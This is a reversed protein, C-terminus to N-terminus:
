IKELENVMTIIHNAAETPNQKYKKYLLYPYIADDVTELGPYRATENVLWNGDISDDSFGTLATMVKNIERKMQPPMKRKEAEVTISKWDYNVYLFYAGKKIPVYIDSWDWVNEETEAKPFKNKVNEFIVGKFLEWNTDDITSLVNGIAVAARITEESQIILDVIAKNVEKDETEGFISKIASLLQRIVERVPPTDETQPEKLCLELWSIIDKKFSISVYEEDDATESAKGDRTLFLVPINRGKNKARSYKAYDKVQYAQEGARIKVEIPIFVNGDEIVIDIRRQADIPYEIHVKADPTNLNISDKIKASVIDWFLKLYLDGKYHRGKPDLLDAIVRCMIVEKESIHAIKFINYKLGKQQYLKDYNKIIETGHRLLLAANQVLGNDNVCVELVRELTGTTNIGSYPILSDHWPPYPSELARDYVM